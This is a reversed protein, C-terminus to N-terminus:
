IVIRLHQFSSMVVHARILYYAIAWLMVAGRGYEVASMLHKNNKMMINM